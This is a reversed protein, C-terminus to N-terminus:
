VLLLTLKAEHSCRPALNRRDTATMEKPIARMKMNSASESGSFRQAQQLSLM